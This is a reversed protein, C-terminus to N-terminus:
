VWGPHERMWVVYRDCAAVMAAWEFGTLEDTIRQQAIPAREQRPDTDFSVTADEIRTVLGDDIDPYAMRVRDVFQDLTSRRDPCVNYCGHGLSPKLGLGVLAAAADPAYAWNRPTDVVRRILAGRGAAVMVQLMPSMFDRVGSPHEWPGFLASLRAIVVETDHLQGHRVVLREGAHKTIGYLSVPEVASTEDLTEAGFTATGYVAGSSIYLLRSVGAATCADLVSQTGGVNVDVITRADIRERDPGATVAAGHIVLSPSYRNFVRRVAADDRVDVREIVPPRELADLSAAALPPIARDTIGV